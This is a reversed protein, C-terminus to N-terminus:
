LHKAALSAVESREGKTLTIHSFVSFNKMRQVMHTLGNSYECLSRNDIQEVDGTLIIKTNNGVRTLITKMEHPSLNQAEDILIFSNNISRGRIYAIAEVEIKQKEFWGDVRQPNNGALFELNDYIPGLWPDLKESLEGPLYGVDQGLTQIPRAVIMKRYIKERNGRGFIQTLGAALALLTKGSGAIGVLSVVKIDPDLLADMALTQEINRPNLGWVSKKGVYDAFIKVIRQNKCRGIASQKTGDINKFVIYKNEIYEVDEPIEDPLVYGDRYLSDIIESHAYIEEHGTYVRTSDQFPNPELTLVKASNAKIKLLKDQTILAAEHASALDVVINDVSDRKDSKLYEINEEYGLLNEILRRANYGAIGKKSKLRDIEELVAMPILVEDKDFDYTELLEPNDILVNTDFLIKSM